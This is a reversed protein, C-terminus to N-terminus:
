RAVDIQVHLTHLAVAVKAVLEPIGHPEAAHMKAVM